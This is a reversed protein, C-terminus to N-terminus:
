SQGTSGFGGTGRETDSLENVENFEVTLFPTVVLQAIRENPSIEHAENSDNYLAVVYEGRFDADCVGVANAPRLGHKTALGSRAYILGVYSEPIEISLGTPIKVTAHPPITINEDICAYLDNGASYKSGKTPIIANPKLKKINITTTPHLNLEAFPSNTLDFASLSLSKNLEPTQPYEFEPQYNSM